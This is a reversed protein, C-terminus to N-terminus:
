VHHPEGFIQNPLLRIAFECIEKIQEELNKESRDLKRKRKIFGNQQAM